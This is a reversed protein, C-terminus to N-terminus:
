QYEMKNRRKNNFNTNLVPWVVCSVIRYSTFARQNSLINITITRSTRHAFKLIRITTICQVPGSGGVPFKFSSPWDWDKWAHSSREILWDHYLCTHRSTLNPKLFFIPLKDSPLTGTINMEINYHSRAKIGSPNVQHPKLPLHSGWRLDNQVEGHLSKKCRGKLFTGIFSFNWCSYYTFWFKILGNRVSLTCTVIFKSRCLQKMYM